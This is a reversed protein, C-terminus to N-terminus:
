KEDTLGGMMSIFTTELDGECQMISLVPINGEAFITSVGTVGKEINYIAITNFPLIEFEESHYNELVINLARKLDGVVVKIFPRCLMELDSGRLEKVIKGKDMVGYCNALKSLEGLLHSSILITIGLDRNLHTLLERMEFIGTPDLGNVPEDLILIKPDGILTMALALRQKMGLSYNKVRLPEDANLSVTHLLEKLKADDNIGLTLACAKMNEFASMNPQYSPFDILSGIKKREFELGKTSSAGNITITGSTQNYLGCIIRILTTKGAGNKGILGYIDGQRVNLSVNDLIKKKGIVKSIKNTEIVFM